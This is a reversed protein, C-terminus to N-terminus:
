KIEQFLVNVDIGVVVCFRIKICVLPEIGLHVNYFVTKPSNLLLDANRQSRAFHSCYVFLTRVDMHGSIM